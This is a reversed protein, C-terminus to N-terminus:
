QNKAFAGICSPLLEIRGLQDIRVVELRNCWIAEGDRLDRNIRGAPLMVCADTVLLISPISVAEEGRSSPKCRSWQLM